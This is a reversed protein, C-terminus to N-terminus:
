RWRRENRGAVGANALADARENGAIGVHGAVWQLAVGPRAALRAKIQRILEQNAKAKWGQTLVGRAYSSDSFVVVPAEPAIDAEDLLELAMEIATLEAVNNTARGLARAWEGCRGDPLQVVAGSGAPGPNGRCSGDTFVVITGEALAAIRGQAHANAAAAQARSRTGASGFGSGRGGTAPDRSSARPAADDGPPLDEAGGSGIVAVNAVAARYLRAGESASYRMRVRGGTALLAGSADVEVWM